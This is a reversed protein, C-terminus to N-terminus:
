VPYEEMPTHEEPKYPIRDQLFAALGGEYHRDVGKLINEDPLSEIVEPDEGWQCDEVWNRADQVIQQADPMSLIDQVDVGGLQAVVSKLVSAIVDSERSLGHNDLETAVELLALRINMNNNENQM